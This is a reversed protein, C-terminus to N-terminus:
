YHRFSQRHSDPGLWFQYLMAMMKELEDLDDPKCLHADAGQDYSKTVDDYTDSTSYVVIPLNNLRKDQRLISLCKRGDMKPMNLDLLVVCQELMTARNQADDLLSLLDDASSLAHFNVPLETRKLAIEVLLVDEPDDDVMIIHSTQHRHKSALLIHDTM